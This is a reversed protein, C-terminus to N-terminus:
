ERWYLPETTFQQWMLERYRCSGSTTCGSSPNGPWPCCVMFRQRGIVVGVLLDNQVTFKERTYLCQFTILHFHKGVSSRTGVVRIYRIIRAPFYLTQWSRCTYDSYDVVKQWSSEDLSQSVEM